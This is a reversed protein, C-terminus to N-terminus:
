VRKGEREKKREVRTARGLYKKEGKGREGLETPTDSADIEDNQAGGSAKERKEKGLHTPKRPRAYTARGRAIILRPFRLM